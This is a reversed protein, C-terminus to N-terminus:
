ISKCFRYVCHRLIVCQLKNIINPKIHKTCLVSLKAIKWYKEAQEMFLYKTVLQLRTFM